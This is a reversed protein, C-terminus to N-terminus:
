ACIDFALCHLCQGEAANGSHCAATIGMEARELSEDLFFPFDTALSARLRAFLM